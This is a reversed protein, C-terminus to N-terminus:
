PWPDRRGLAPMRRLSFRDCVGTLDLTSTIAMESRRVVCLAAVRPMQEAIEAIEANFLDRRM